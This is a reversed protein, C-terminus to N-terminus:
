SANTSVTDVPCVNLEVLFIKKTWNTLSVNWKIKTKKKFTSDFVCDFKNFKLFVPSFIKNIKMQIKSILEVLHYKCLKMECFFFFMFDTM